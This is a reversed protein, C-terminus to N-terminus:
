AAMRGPDFHGSSFDAHTRLRDIFARFRSRLAPLVTVPAVLRDLELTERATPQYLAVASRALSSIAISLAEGVYAFATAIAAFAISFLRLSYRAM